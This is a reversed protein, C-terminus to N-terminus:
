LYVRGRLLLSQPSIQAHHGDRAPWSHRAPPELTVPTTELLRAFVAATPSDPQPVYMVLRVATGPVDLVQCDWEMPGFEHHVVSKRQVRRVAVRHDAWMVGFEPSGRLLEDVLARLKADKPSRALSARLDAVCDKLFAVSQPDALLHSSFKGLFNTRLLNREELELHSLYGMLRDASANWALMDYCADIAYAPYDRLGELLNRITPPIERSSESEPLEDALLFLHARQDRDLMLARALAGLVQKSPKPGRAQELRIYYEISIGALQAVEQRRLGPTRRRPGEPLGADGPRIAARRTRLFSALETRDMGDM